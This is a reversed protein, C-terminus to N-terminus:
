AGAGAPAVGPARLVLDVLASRGLHRTGEALVDEHDRRVLPTWGPFHAIVQEASVLMDPDRPGGTGFAM